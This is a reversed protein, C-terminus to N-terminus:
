AGDEEESVAESQRTSMLYKSHGLRKAHYPCPLPCDSRPYGVDPLRERVNGQRDSTVSPM